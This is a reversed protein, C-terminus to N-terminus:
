DKKDELLKKFVDNVMRATEIAEGELEHGYTGYTDFDKGHGGMPKVMEAPLRKTASFFTHRMEYPTRDSIKNHEQYRVWHKYYTIQRAPTGKPSPFIYPSVIGARNLMRRQEKLIELGIEPIVFTRLANENKGSTEEDYYNRARHISCIDKKIDKKELGVIEGPRMGTVVAFRFAYIYWEDIEKKHEVTKTSNFLIKLDNPQLPAKKTKAAGKPIYLDEPHLKTLKSKRAYKTFAKLCDIINSLTKESLIEGKVPNEFAYLVVDQLNQENLVSVKKTGIKKKVYNKGYQEYNRWHSKSTAIKLETIWKDFFPSVKTNPDVIDDKLWADAKAQCELQGERGKKPSTFTKREGEKRVKIQWREYEPLWKAINIREAM